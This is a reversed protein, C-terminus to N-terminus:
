VVYFFISNYNALSTMTGAAGTCVGRISITDTGNLSVVWMMSLEDGGEAGSIARNSGTINAGNKYFFFDIAFTEAASDSFTIQAQILYVGAKPTFVGSVAAGIKLPDAVITDWNHNAQLTTSFTQTAANRFHSMKSPGTLDSPSNQPVYFEVDYDVWLKGIVNTDAGDVTSVYLAAVDYINQDSGILASRILKRPGIPFMSAKDLRCVNEAWDPGETADQTNSAQAESTPALDKVAYDPSLLISGVTSTACRPVYRFQCSHFTYQEWQAAEVSLWPFTAAIGPNVDYRNTAFSVSNSVSGILESNKVRHTSKLKSNTFSTKFGLANPASIASKAKKLKNQKKVESQKKKILKNLKQTKKVKRPTQNNLNTSM